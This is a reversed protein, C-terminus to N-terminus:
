FVGSATWHVPLLETPATECVYGSPMVSTVRACLHLSNFHEFAAELAQDGSASIDPIVGSGEWDAQTVPDFAMGIPVMLGYGHPLEFFEAPHSAGYTAEGVITARSRAQLIFPMLEATSATRADTLVYLPADFHHQCAPDPESHREITEFEDGHRWRIGHVATPHELLCAALIRFHMADGGRNGRLDFIFATGDPIESFTRNFTQAISEDSTFEEIRILAIPAGEAELPVISFPLANSHVEESNHPIDDHDGLIRRTREPGYVGLHGDPLAAQLVRHVSLAFAEDDDIGMISSDSRMSEIADVYISTLDPNYINDRIVSAMEALVDGRDDSAEVPAHLLALPVCLLIVRLSIELFPLM